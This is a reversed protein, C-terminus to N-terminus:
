QCARIKTLFRDLSQNNAPNIHVREKTCKAVFANIAEEKAKDGIYKKLENSYNVSRNNSVAWKSVMWAELERDVILIEVKSLLTTALYKKLGILYATKLETICNAMLKKNCETKFDLLVFVKGRDDDEILTTIKSAMARFNLIECGSHCNAKSIVTKFRLSTDYHRKIYDDMFKKDSCGEVIVATKM